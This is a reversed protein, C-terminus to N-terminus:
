HQGKLDLRLPAGAADVVQVTAAHTAIDEATECCYDWPTKCADGMNDSCSPLARGVLTFVARGEVFPETGGGIRGRMAVADGPKASAKVDEVPKDGAPAASL